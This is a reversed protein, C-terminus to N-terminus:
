PMWRRHAEALSDLGGLSKDAKDIQNANRILAKYDNRDKVEMEHHAKLDERDHERKNHHFAVGAIIGAVTVIGGVLITVITCGESWTSLITNM